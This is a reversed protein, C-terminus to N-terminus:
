VVAALVATGILGVGVMVGVLVGVPVLVPVPVVV